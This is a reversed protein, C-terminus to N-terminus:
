LMAVVGMLGAAMAGLGYVASPAAGTFTPLTATYTYNGTGTGSTAPIQPITVSPVTLYPPTTPAPFQPQGDSIQSVPAGTPAPAQPQGDSIQSIPAGTPAPAQPQGDSIQSIPAGTPSPAQPQGDSIQSVPVGTPAQPQGDSIQSVIIGTPVQPQGDSIQSVPVGTPAQPQGDSIQSIIITTAIPQGDGIQSAPPADDSENIAVLYIPSCQAAWHRDYINYFSGSWCQYFIASSGLALSNNSCLSYGGTSIANAQPPADFQWQYNSAIYGQRGAQDKLIGENLTLTLIGSLQRKEVDRKATTTANVVTVQFTGSHSDACGEPTAAQPMPSAMAVAVLALATFTTKM